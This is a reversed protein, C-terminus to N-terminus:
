CSCVMKHDQLKTKLNLSKLKRKPNSEKGKTIGKKLSKYKEEAIYIGKKPSKQVVVM